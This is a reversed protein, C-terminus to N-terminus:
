TRQDQASDGKAKHCGTLAVLTIAVCAVPLSNKIWQRM